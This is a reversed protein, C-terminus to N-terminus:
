FLGYPTEIPTFEGPIKSRVDGFVQNYRTLFWASLDGNEGSLLHAALAYPLVSRALTDDLPIEQTFDPTSYNAPVTLLPCAPRGSGSAQYTDSFPYLAPMVANLISITRSKYETTDAHMTAGSSESQEDMMHIAMDFVNQVTIM